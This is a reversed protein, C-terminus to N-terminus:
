GLLRLVQGALYLSGVVLTRCGAVCDVFTLVRSIDPEFGVEPGGPKRILAALEEPRFANDEDPVAVCTIRKIYPMLPDLFGKPDKTKMMGFVLHLPKGDDEAWQLAQAALAKGASENHGGDIWLECGPPLDPRELRQLRGPWRVNQLGTEVAIRSFEFGTLVNLCALAAAENDRQHPGIMNTAPADPGVAARILPAGREAAIKELTDCIENGDQPAVICPVGLKIIGGKEAAIQPMTQGLFEMHDFGIRTIVTALPCEVVNTCDLRGGLGTELLCIDAQVRAFATFALATTIEFFTLPAGANAALVEDLLRELDADGIETGALIVRENFRTLHPSTYVHAACGHAEFVARLMAVVSGKGNTGAVHITPPLNLHPDGLASLLARYPERITLDISPGSRLAYISQLKKELTEDPHLSDAAYM